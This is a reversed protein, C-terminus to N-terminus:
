IISNLNKIDTSDTKKTKLKMSKNKLDVLNLTKNFNPRVTGVKCYQTNM